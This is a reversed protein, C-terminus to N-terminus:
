RAAARAQRMEEALKHLPNEHAETGAMLVGVQSALQKAVAAAQSGLVTGSDLQDALILCSQGLTTHLRDGLEQRLAAAVGSVPALPVSPLRTVPALGAGSRNARSSKQRCAASCFRATTRRADFTSGCVECAIIAAM